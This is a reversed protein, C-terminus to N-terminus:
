LSKGLKTLERMTNEAQPAERQVDDAALKLLYETIHRPYLLFKDLTIGFRKNIEYVKYRWIKNQIPGFSHIDEKPRVSVYSLPGLSPDDDTTIGYANQYARQRLIEFTINDIKDGSQELSTILEKLRDLWQGTV